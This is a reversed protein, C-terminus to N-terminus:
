GGGGRGRGREWTKKAPSAVVLFYGAVMCPAKTDPRSATLAPCTGLWATRASVFPPAMRLNVCVSPRAVAAAALAPPQQQLLPRGPM